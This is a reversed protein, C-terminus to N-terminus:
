AILPSCSFIMANEEGYEVLDVCESIFYLNRTYASGDVTCHFDKWSLHNAETIYVTYSHM